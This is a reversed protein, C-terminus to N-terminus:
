WVAKRKGVVSVQGVAVFDCVSQDGFIPAMHVSGAIRLHQEIVESDLKICDAILHADSALRKEIHIRKKLGDFVHVLGNTASIGTNSKDVSVTEKRKSVWM